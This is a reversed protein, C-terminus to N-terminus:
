ESAFRVCLEVLPKTKELIEAAYESTFAQSAPIGEAEYGYFAPGRVRALEVLMTQMQGIQANLYAPLRGAVAALAESVDHEHPYEIALRRLVAKAALEIAEQSRRVCIASNGGSLADQAEKLSWKARKGYDQAMRINKL